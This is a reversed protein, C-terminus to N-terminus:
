FTSRDQRVFRDWRQDLLNPQSLRQHAEFWVRLEVRTDKQQGKSVHESACCQHSLVFSSLLSTIHHSTIHHSTIHHSAIHHSTIHHSSFGVMLAKRAHVVFHNIGGQSVISVFDFLNEYSENDDVGIRMKITLSHKNGEDDCERPNLSEIMASSIDRMLEPYNLLVAGFSFAKPSNEALCSFTILSSSIL